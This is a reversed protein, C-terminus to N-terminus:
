IKCPLTRHNSLFGIMNINWWYKKEKKDKVVLPWKSEVIEIRVSLTSYFWNMMTIHYIIMFNFTPCLISTQFFNLILIFFNSVKAFQSFSIEILFQFFWYFAFNTEGENLVITKVFSVRWDNSLWKLISPQCLKSSLILTTKQGM